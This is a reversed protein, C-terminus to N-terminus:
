LDAMMEVMERDNICASNWKVGDPTEGLMRGIQGDTM